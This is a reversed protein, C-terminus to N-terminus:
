KAAEFHTLATEAHKVARAVRRSSHTHKATKIARKLHTVGTKIHESPKEKQAANAHDLANVADKTEAIAQELHSAQALAMRPAVALGLASAVLAVMLRRTLM